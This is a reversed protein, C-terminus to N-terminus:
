FEFTVEAAATSTPPPTQLRRTEQLGLERLLRKNYMDAIKRATPGDVPNPDVATAALLAALGVGALAGGAIVPRSDRTLCRDNAVDIKTCSGVLGWAILGGGGVMLGAGGLGISLRVRNRKQYAAVLDTRGVLEFFALTELPQRYKGQYPTIWQELTRGSDADFIQIDSFGIYKEDYLEQATKSELGSSPPQPASIATKNQLPQGAEAAFGAKRHGDQDYLSIVATSPRGERPFVRVVMVRDIPLGKSREVIQSDSLTALDGLASDDMVLRAKGSARLAAEIAETAPRAELTAAVVLIAVPHLDLQSAVASAPFSNSWEQAPVPTAWLLTLIPLLTM